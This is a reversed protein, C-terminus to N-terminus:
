HVVRSKRPLGECRGHILPALGLRAQEQLSPIFRCHRSRPLPPHPLSRTTCRARAGARLPAAIQGPDERDARVDHQGPPHHAPGRERVSLARLWDHRGVKPTTPGVADRHIRHQVALAAPCHTPLGDLIQGQIEDVAKPASSVRTNEYQPKSEFSM